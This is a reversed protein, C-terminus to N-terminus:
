PLPLGNYNLFNELFKNQQASFAAAKRQMKPKIPPFFGLCFGAFFVAGGALLTAAIEM